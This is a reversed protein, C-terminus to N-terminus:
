RVVRVCHRSVSRFLRQVRDLRDSIHGLHRRSTLAAGATLFPTRGVSAKHRDSLSGMLPDCVVLWLKPGLVAAGALWAPVGLLTTMFLPLLAAPTDRFIQAGTQGTGYKLLLSVPLASEPSTSKMSAVEATRTV